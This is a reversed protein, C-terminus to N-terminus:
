KGAPATQQPSRAAVSREGQRKGDREGNAIFSSDTKDTGLAQPALGTKALASLECGLIATSFQVAAPFVLPFGTTLYDVDNSASIRM